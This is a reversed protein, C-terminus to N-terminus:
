SKKGLQPWVAEMTYRLSGLVCLFISLWLWAKAYMPKTSSVLLGVSFVLLLLFAFAVGVATRRPGFARDAFNWVVILGVWLLVVGGVVVLHLWGMRSPLSWPWFVFVIIPIGVVLCAVLYKDLKTM